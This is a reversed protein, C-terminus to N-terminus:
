GQESQRWRKARGGPTVITQAALARRLMVALGRGGRARMLRWAASHEEPPLTRAHGRRTELLRGLSRGV